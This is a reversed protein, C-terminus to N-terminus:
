KWRKAKTLMHALKLSGKAAAYLPDEFITVNVNQNDNEKRIMEQLREQLGKTNAVHGTVYINEAVQRRIAEDDFRGSLAKIARPIKEPIVM